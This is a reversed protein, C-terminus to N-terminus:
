LLRRRRHVAGLGVLGLGLLLATGPEPVPTPTVDMPDDGSLKSSGGRSGGEPGVTQLRLAFRTFDSIDLTGGLDAVTFEVLQVDDTSFGNFRLGVDFSGPNNPGGGTLNVGGGLNSTTNGFGIVPGGTLVSVDSQTLASSADFFIGTIDGINGTGTEPLVQVSVSFLGATSDDVTVLADAPSGTFPDLDFSIMTAHTSASIALLMLALTGKNLYHM